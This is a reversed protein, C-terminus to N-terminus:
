KKIAEFDKVFDLIANIEVPYYDWLEVSCNIRRSVSLDTKIESKGGHLHITGFNKGNWDEQPYHSMVIGLEPLEIIKDEAIMLHNKAIKSLELSAKDNQTPILIIKGNLRQLHESGILPDWIFNGLHYIKDNAKVKSNWRLIFDENMEEISSYKRKNIELINTRGIFHDSTVYTQSM